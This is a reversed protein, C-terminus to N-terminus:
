RSSGGATTSPASGTGAAPGSSGSPAASPPACSRVSGRRGPAAAAPPAAGLFLLIAAAYMGYMGYLPFGKVAAFWMDKAVKWTAQEAAYSDYYDGFRLRPIVEHGAIQVPGVHDSGLFTRDPSSTLWVKLAMLGLLVLLITLRLWMRRRATRDHRQLFGLVVVCFAAGGFLVLGIQHVFQFVVMVTLFIRQPWTRRGPALMAMFVPWFLHQQFISDNIVFIQGPLPGAMIGFAAWVILWPADRKVVWWSGLLGVVPALLFPLGYAFTLATVNSTYHSLWVLPQWLLLTHFRTLYAYPKQWILSFAFQYAGDYIMPAGCWCAYVATLTLIGAVWYVFGGPM